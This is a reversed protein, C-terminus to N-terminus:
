SHEHTQTQATHNGRQVKDDALAQDFRGGDTLYAPQQQHCREVDGSSTQVGSADRLPEERALTVDPYTNLVSKIRIKMWM